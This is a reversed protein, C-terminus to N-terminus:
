SLKDKKKGQGRNDKIKHCVHLHLCLLHVHSEAKWLIIFSCSTPSLFLVFLVTKITKQNFANVAVEGSSLQIKCLAQRFVM